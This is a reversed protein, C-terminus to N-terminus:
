RPLKGDLYITITGWFQNQQGPDVLLPMWVFELALLYRETSENLGLFVQFGKLTYDRDPLGTIVDYRESITCGHQKRADAAVSVVINCFSCGLEAGRRWEGYAHNKIESPNLESLHPWDLELDTGCLLCCKWFPISGHAAAEDAENDYESTMRPLHHSASSAQHTPNFLPGCGLEKEGDPVRDMTRTKDAHRM